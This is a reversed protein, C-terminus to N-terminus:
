MRHLRYSKGCAPKKRDQSAQEKRNEYGFQVDKILVLDPMM